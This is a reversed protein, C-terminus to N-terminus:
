RGFGSATEMLPVSRRSSNPFFVNRAIGANSMGTIIYPHIYPPMQVGVSAPANLATYPM